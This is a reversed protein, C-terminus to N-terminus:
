PRRQGFAVPPTSRAAVEPFGVHGGEGGSGVPSTALLFTFGVVHFAPKARQPCPDAAQHSFGVGEGLAGLVVEVGDVEEDGGVVEGDLPLCCM